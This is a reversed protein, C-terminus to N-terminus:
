ANNKLMTNLSSVVSGDALVAELGLVLARMMGFRIVNIGGANMAVNGGITCSGRAGLDLPLLLGQAEVAEQLRQLRCGAQVRVTRGIPDIEEIESMRELSVVLDQASARDGDCVGTLGGHVVVSQRREHCWRLVQALQATSGPRVLARAELPSSDWHNRARERLAQPGVVAEPGLLGRLESLFESMVIEGRVLACHRMTRRAEQCPRGQASLVQWLLLQWPM